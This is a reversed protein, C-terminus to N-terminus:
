MINEITKWSIFLIGAGNSDIAAVGRMSRSLLYLCLALWYLKPFTLTSEQFSDFWIFTHIKDNVLSRDCTRQDRYCFDRGFKACSKRRPQSEILQFNNLYFSNIICLQKQLNGLRRWSRVWRFTLRLETKPSALRKLQTSQTVSVGGFTAFFFAVNPLDFIPLLLSFSPEHALRIVYRILTACCDNLENRVKITQLITM